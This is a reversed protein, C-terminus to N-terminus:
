CSRMLPGSSLGRTVDPLQESADGLHVSTPPDQDGRVLPGPGPREVRRGRTAEEERTGPSQTGDQQSHSWGWAESWHTWRVDGRWPSVSVDFGHEPKEESVCAGGGDAEKGLQEMRRQSLGFRGTRRPM